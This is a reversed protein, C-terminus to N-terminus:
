LRLVGSLTLDLKTDSDADVSFGDVSVSNKSVLNLKGQVEVRGDNNTDKFEFVHIEYEGTEVFSLMFSGDGKVEASTVAGAFQVNSEGSGSLETNMDFSGKKYLFAVSKAEATDKIDVLGKVTGSGSKLALRIGSELEAETVLDYDDSSQKIIQGCTLTQWM